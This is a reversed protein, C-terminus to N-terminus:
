HASSLQDISTALSFDKETLGQESHTTLTLRVRNWGYLLIDPHHDATEALAGVQNVFALAAQFNELVWEREIEDGIREWAPLNALRHSIEDNTLRM